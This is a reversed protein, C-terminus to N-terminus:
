YSEETCNVVHVVYELSYELTREIDDNKIATM